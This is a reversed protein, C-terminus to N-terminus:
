KRFILSLEKRELFFATILFLLFLLNGAILNREFVYFSLFVMVASALLYLVCKKVNYPIPYNRQGLWYSVVMMMTYAMLSVWASAMYSYKPIFIVNLVLTIVAGVLSIVLGFRTQDSLKYWVSLNIYIGLCVYGFLLVPVVKLGSWYLAEQAADKGKIFYKLIEINAVLGIFIASVTIVFYNMITAYTQGSNANKAHSFFFPEAGLRFAQIFISLFIAIKACAGYIGVERSSIAEPLLESLFIKDANENIIFSLNAVLVPWSYRFMENFLKRDFVPRVQMIEPLLLLLTVVSAVLNSIFVYGVWSQRYFAAFFSAGPLDNGIVWPMVYIFFLNLGVFTLINLFRILGYRGPRGDARVKAFPIVCLADVVLIWIFYQVYSVYDSFPAITSNHLYRAIQDASLLTLVLFALATVGVAIFTNSYVKEKQDAHKNLYRFFTTEMGLSLLANVLSAYSFLTALIGYVKAPYVSVYVPTLLFNLIRSIITSLGYVATQGAFKKLTSM